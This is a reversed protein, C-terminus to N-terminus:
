YRMVGIYPNIMIRERGLKFVICRPVPIHNAPDGNIFTFIEKKQKATQSTNLVGIKNLCISTSRDIVGTSFLVYINAEVWCMKTSDGDNKIHKSIICYIRRSRGCTLISRMLNDVNKQHKGLLGECDDFIVLSEKDDDGIFDLYPSADEKYMELDEIKIVELNDIKQLNEDHQLPKSSILFVPSDPYLKNFTMAYESVFFTKGYGSPGSLLIVDRDKREPNDYVLPILKLETAGSIKYFPKYGFQTNIVEDIIKKDFKIKKKDFEKTVLDTVESNKLIYVIEGNNLKVFPTGIDFSDSFKKIIISYSM